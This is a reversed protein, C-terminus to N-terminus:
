KVVITLSVPAFPLVSAGADPSPGSEASGVVATVLYCYSGPTVTSDTFTLGTVISTNLKTFGALSTPETAPCASTQRYVNYTTGTPNSPDTWSLTASHQTQAKLLGALGLMLTSTILLKRM